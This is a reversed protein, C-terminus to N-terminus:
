HEDSRSAQASISMWADRLPQMLRQCEELLREDNRLNAQTLRLNLYGYLDHLDSALRGGAQLNLGARLGEDVIRVARGIARGKDDIRGAQMAGRAEALAELYGDFLMAVLRHPSAAAVGTEAAIQKYARAFQPSRGFAASSPTSFM